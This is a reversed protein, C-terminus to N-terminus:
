RELTLEVTPAHEILETVTTQDRYWSTAPHNWITTRLAPDTVEVATAAVDVTLGTMPDGKLHLTMAPDARLNALWDRPGPTGGIVVRGDINVIWIEIRRPARSTRGTTTIDVTIPQDGAQSIAARIQESTLDGSSNLVNVHHCILWGSM